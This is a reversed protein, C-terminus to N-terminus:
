MRQNHSLVTFGRDTDPGDYEIASTAFTAGRDWALQGSNMPYSAHSEQVRSAFERFRSATTHAKPARFISGTATIRKVGTAISESRETEAQRRRALSM